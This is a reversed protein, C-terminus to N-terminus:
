SLNLTFEIKNGRKKQSFKLDLSDAIEVLAFIVEDHDPCSVVVKDDNIDVNVTEGVSSLKVKGSKGSLITKSLSRRDSSSVKDSISEILVESQEIITEISDDDKLFTKIKDTIDVNEEVKKTEEDDDHLRATQDIDNDARADMKQKDLQLRRADTHKWLRDGLMGKLSALTKSYSKSSGMGQSNDFEDYNWDQGLEDATVYKITAGTLRNPVKVPVMKEGFITTGTVLDDDSCISAGTKTTELLINKLKM